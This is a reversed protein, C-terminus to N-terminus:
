SSCFLPPRPSYNGARDGTTSMLVLDPETQAPTKEESQHEARVPVWTVNPHRQRLIELWARMLGERAERPIGLSHHHAAAPELSIGPRDGDGITSGAPASARM